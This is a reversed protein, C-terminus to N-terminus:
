DRDWRFKSKKFFQYAHKDQRDHDHSRKVGSIAGTIDVLQMHKSLLPATYLEKHHKDM